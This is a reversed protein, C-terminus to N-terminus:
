FLFERLKHKDFLLFFTTSGNLGDVRILDSYGRVVRDADVAVIGGFRVSLGPLRHRMDLDGAKPSFPWLGDRDVYHSKNM